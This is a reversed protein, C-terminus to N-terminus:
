RGPTALPTRNSPWSARCVAVPPTSARVLHGPGKPAVMCVDVDAPPQIYGFRINFGHAFFLADGAKLNDAIAQAYLGRQAPDPVLVMILDAEACATAPDVVRLGEAEAKPRSKSGEVLGM